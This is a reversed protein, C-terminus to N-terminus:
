LSHFDIWDKVFEVVLDRVGHRRGDGGLIDLILESVGVIVMSIWSLTRNVRELVM